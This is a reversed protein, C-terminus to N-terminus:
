ALHFFSVLFSENTFVFMDASRGKLVEDGRGGGQLDM